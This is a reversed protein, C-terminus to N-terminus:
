NTEWVLRYYHGPRPRSVIWGFEDISPNEVPIKQSWIPQSSDKHILWERSFSLLRCSPPLRVSLELKEIDADVSHALYTKLPKIPKELKVGFSFEYTENKNLTKLLKATAIKGHGTPDEKIDIKEVNRLFEVGYEGDGSWNAKFEYFNTASNARCDLVKSISCCDDQKIRYDIKISNIKLGPNRSSLQRKAARYFYAVGLVIFCFSLATLCSTLHPSRNLFFSLLSAVASFFGLILLWHYGYYIAGAVYYFFALRNQWKGGHANMKLLLQRKSVRYTNAFFCM